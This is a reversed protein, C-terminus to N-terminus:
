FVLDDDRTFGAFCQFDLRPVFYNDPRKSIRDKDELSGLGKM